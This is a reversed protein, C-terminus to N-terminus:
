PAAKNESKPLRVSAPLDPFFRERMQPVKDGDVYTWKPSGDDRVALTFGRVDLRQDGVTMVSRMPVVAFLRDKGRVFTPAEPFEFLEQKPNGSQILRFIPEMQRRAKEAGGLRELESPHSLRLVTDADGAVIAAAMARMDAQIQAVDKAGQASAFGALGIWLVAAWTRSARM